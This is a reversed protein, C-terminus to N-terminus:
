DHNMMFLDNIYDNMIFNDDSSHLRRLFSEGDKDIQVVCREMFREVKTWKYAHNRRYVLISKLVAFLEADDDDEDVEHLLTKHCWINREIPNPDNKFREFGIRIIEEIRSAKIKKTKIEPEASKRTKNKLQPMTRITLHVIQPSYRNATRDVIRPSDSTKIKSDPEAQQSTKTKDQRAAIERLKRLAIEEYRDKIKSKKKTTPLTGAGTGTGATQKKKVSARKKEPAECKLGSIEDNDPSEMQLIDQIGPKDPDLKKKSSSSKANKAKGHHQKEFCVDLRKGTDMKTKEKTAKGADQKLIKGNILSVEPQSKHPCNRRLHGEERCKFCLDKNKAKWKKEKTRATRTSKGENQKKLELLIKKLTSAQSMLLKTVSTNDM